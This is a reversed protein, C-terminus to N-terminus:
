EFSDSCFYTTVHKEINGLLVLHCFIVADVVNPLTRYKQHTEPVSKSTIVHRLRTEQYQIEM